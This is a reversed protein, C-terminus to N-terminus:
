MGKSSLASLSNAVLSAMGFSQFFLALNYCVVEANDAPYLVGHLYAIKATALLAGLFFGIGLTNALPMSFVDRVFATTIVTGLVGIVLFSLSCAAWGVYIDRANDGSKHFFLANATVTLALAAVHIVVSTWLGVHSGNGTLFSPALKQGGFSFLPTISGDAGYYSTDVKNAQM